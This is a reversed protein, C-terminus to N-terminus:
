PNLAISYKQGLYEEVSKRQAEELAPYFCLVEAMEGDFFRDTVADNSANQQLGLLFMPTVGNPTASVILPQNLPLASSSELKKGNVILEGNFGKLLDPSPIAANSHGFLAGDADTARLVFVFTSAGNDLFDPYLFTGKADFRIAPKGNIANAVLQPRWRTFPQSAEAVTGRRTPTGSSDFWKVVRNNADLQLKGQASLWFRPQWKLGAIKIQDQGTNRTTEVNVKESTKSAKVIQEYLVPAIKAAGAENVHLGDPALEKNDKLPGLFTAMDWYSAESAAAVEPLIKLYRQRLAQSRGVGADVTSTILVKADPLTEHIRSAILNINRAYGAWGTGTINHDNTGLMVVVVNPQLVKLASSFITPDIDVFNQSTAYGRGWKHVVARNLANGSHTEVGLLTVNGAEVTATLTHSGASLGDLSVRRVEQTAARTEVQQKQAGDLNLTFSGGEPAALYFLDAGSGDFRV